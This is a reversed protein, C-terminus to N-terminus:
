YCPDATIDVQTGGVVHNDAGCDKVVLAPNGVLVTNDFCSPTLFGFRYSDGVLEIDYTANNSATNGVLLNRNAGDIVLHGADFNDSADNHVSLWGECSFEAGALMGSPLPIAAEPVKCLITGILNGHASNNYLRGNRDCAWIGFLANSCDNGVVRAGEANIIVIGHADALEGTLWAGTTFVTNAWVIAGDAQELLIGYQHERLTNHAIVVGPSDEALIATGGVSGAPVIELGLVISGAAGHVYLAPEVQSAPPLPATDVQLTAGPLGALTLPYPVTVTGSESHLGPRLIVTGHPGAAAIAGALADVSGAPVFVVHSRAHGGQPELIEKTMVQLRSIMAEIDAASDDLRTDIGGAAPAVPTEGSCGALVVLLGTVFLITLHRKANM